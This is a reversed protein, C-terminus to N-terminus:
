EKGKKAPLAAAPAPDPDHLCLDGARMQEQHFVTWTVERGADLWRGGSDLARHGDQVRRGPAPWVRVKEGLEPM